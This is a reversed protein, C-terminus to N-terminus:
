VLGALDCGSAISVLSSNFPANTVAVRGSIRYSNHSTSCTGDSRHSYSGTGTGFSRSSSPCSFKAEIVQAKMNDSHFATKTNIFMETESTQNKIAIPLMSRMVFAFMNVWAEM